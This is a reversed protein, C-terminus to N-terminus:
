FTEEVWERVRQTVSGTRASRRRGASSSAWQGDGRYPFALLGIATAFSPHGIIESKGIVGQPLGVRSSLQLIKESAQEIGKLLSGGGTLIAGGPVVRDAYGSDQLKESILTFIEEVRPEIMDILTRRSVKRFTRGDMATFNVEGDNQELLSAMAVGHNEKIQQAQSLSTRLGYALDRTVSDAGISLKETFHVSGDFYVAIDTTQGGIDILLSGLDREEQTVVVEGAALLGYIPETVSFGAMNIAKFINSLHSRSATVIQVDVELLSGEMGVPNPVGQQRDLTFGQPITHIIERDASLHVAQASEIAKEVDDATIEKDTRAINLAGHNNFTQLHSGRVAITVDKVMEKATDEAEECIRTVARATENINIVVGGKLGGPCASRAGSLIEIQGTQADRRGIVTAVQASGIDLGAVIDTKSM